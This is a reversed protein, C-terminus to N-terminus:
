LLDKIRDEKMNLMHRLETYERLNVPASRGHHGTTTIKSLELQDNLKRVERLARRFYFCLCFAHKKQLCSYFSARHSFPVEYVLVKRDFLFCFSPAAVGVQYKASSWSTM